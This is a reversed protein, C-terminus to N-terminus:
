MKYRGLSEPDLEELWKRLKDSEDGDNSIDISQARDMVASEVFIPCGCRVSLAVADSPRSDIRIEHSDIELFIEAFFTNNQLDSIIVHRM